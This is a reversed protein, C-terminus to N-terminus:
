YYLALYSYFAQHEGPNKEPYNSLSFDGYGLIAVITIPYLYGNSVFISFPVPWFRNMTFGGIIEGKKEMFIPIRNSNGDWLILFSEVLHLVGIVFLIESVNIKPWGMILNIISLIGGAYSFCM